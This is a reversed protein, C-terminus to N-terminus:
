QGRNAQSCCCCPILFTSLLRCCICTSRLTAAALVSITSTPTCITACCAFHACVVTCHLISFSPQFAQECWHVLYLDLYEIQLDELVKQIAGAM